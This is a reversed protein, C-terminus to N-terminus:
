ERGANICTKLFSAGSDGPCPPCTQELVVVGRRHSGALRIEKATSSRRQLPHSPAETLPACGRCDRSMVERQAALAAEAILRDSVQWARELLESLHPPPPKSVCRGQENERVRYREGEETHRVVPAGGVQAIAENPCTLLEQGVALEAPDFLRDPPVKFFRDLMSRWSFPLAPRAEYAAFQLHRRAAM